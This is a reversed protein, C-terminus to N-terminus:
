GRIGTGPVECRVGSVQQELPPIPLGKALSFLLWDEVAQALNRRCDELTSGTAWVGELGAVEGYYPETDNIIEYRARDLAAQLYETLM